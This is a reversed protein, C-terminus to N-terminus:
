RGENKRKRLERSSARALLIFFFVFGTLMISVLYPLGAPDRFSGIWCGIVLPLLLWGVFYGLFRTVKHQWDPANKWGSNGSQTATNTHTYTATFTNITTNVVPEPRYAPNSITFQSGCYECDVNVKLQDKAVPPISFITAGCNPCKNQQM